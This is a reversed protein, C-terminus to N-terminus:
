NNAQLISLVDCKKYYVRNSGDIKQFKIKGNQKWKILTIESIGFLKAVHKQTLLENDDKPQPATTSTKFKALVNSVTVEIMKQLEIMPISTLVMQSNITNEM